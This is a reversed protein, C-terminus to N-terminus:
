ASRQTPERHRRGRLVGASRRSMDVGRRRFAIELEAQYRASSTLDAARVEVVIWGRRRLDVLRAEDEVEREAHAAYGHYEIAIRLVPWSLDLRYIEQGDIGVVSFNVEPPPFGADVVHFLLRSEAPSEAQGTALELLREARRVGRPDPRAALREAITARFHERLRPEIVAMAEDLVALADPRGTCLLDGITRPLGLVPLGHRIEKDADPLPGNHITLGARSRLRHEYPCILHVPTPVASSCGHLYAATPGALRVSDGGLEVAASALTLPDAARSAEVLVGPWPASWLGTREARRVHNEGYRALAARRTFAGHRGITSESM